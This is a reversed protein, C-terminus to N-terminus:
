PTTGGGFQSDCTMSGSRVSVSAFTSSVYISLMFEIAPPSRLPSSFGSRPAPSRFSFRLSQNCREAAPPQPPPSKTQLADHLHDTLTDTEAPRLPPLLGKEGSGGFYRPDLVHTCSHASAPSMKANENYNVRM